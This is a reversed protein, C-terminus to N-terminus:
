SGDHGTFSCGADALRLSAEHALVTARLTHDPRERVSCGQANRHPERNVLPPLHNLARPDGESWALLLPNVDHCSAARRM